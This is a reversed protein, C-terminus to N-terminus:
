TKKRFKEKLFKLYNENGLIFKPRHHGTKRSYKFFDSETDSIAIQIDKIYKKYNNEGIDFISFDFFECYEDLESELKEPKGHFIRRFYGDTKESRGIYWEMFESKLNQADNM